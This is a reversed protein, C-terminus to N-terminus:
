SSVVCGASSCSFTLPASANPPPITLSATVSGTLGFYAPITFTADARAATFKLIAKIKQGVREKGANLLEVEDSPSSLAVSAGAAGTTLDELTTNGSSDGDTLYPTNAFPPFAQYAASPIVNKGPDVFEALTVGQMQEPVSSAAAAVVQGGFIVPALVVSLRGTPDDAGAPEASSGSGIAVEGEAFSLPVPASRGNLARGSYALVGIVDDGSPVSMTTSCYFFAGSQKCIDALQFTKSIRVSPSLDNDSKLAIAIATTSPSFYQPKRATSIAPAFPITFAIRVEGLSGAATRPVGARTSCAAAFLLALCWVAELRRM